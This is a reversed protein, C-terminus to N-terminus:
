DDKHKEQTLEGLSELYNENRKEKIMSSFPNDRYSKLNQGLGMIGNKRSNRVLDFDVEITFIDEQDNSIHLVNGEPDCAISQGCGQEGVSNVDVYYCQQQVATARVMVTEIERDQTPTLTPNIILEAGAMALARSTEPFWLDYCIHVGIIGTGPYEFTCIENGPTIQNEYPLWPYLKRAKTVLNGENNIVPCTNYIVDDEFEHFTGPILWTDYKKALDSFLPLFTSLSKEEDPKVGSVALESLVIMHTQEDESLVKDVELSIKEFNDSDKLDLQLSCINIKAM